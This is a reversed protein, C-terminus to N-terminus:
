IATKGAKRRVQEGQYRIGKGKYPEPPRLARIEAAAQGVKEKDVGSVTVVTPSEVGLKVGEPPDYALPQSYGLHLRLSRGQAEARYGVGVIELRREFGDVVGKVMSALLSGTLGHLARHDRRDSPRKVRLEGDEQVIEMAPHFEREIEGKPGKIRVRTREIVVSVGSPIPIAQMGVRSM